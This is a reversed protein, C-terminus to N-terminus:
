LRRPVPVYKKIEGESRLMPAWETSLQDVKHQDKWVTKYEAKVYFQFACRRCTAEAAWYHHWQIGDMSPGMFLRLASGVLTQDRQVKISNGDVDYHEHPCDRQDVSAKSYTGKSIRGKLVDVRITQPCDLCKESRIEREWFLMHMYTDHVQVVQTREHKCSM